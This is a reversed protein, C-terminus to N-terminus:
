DKKLFLDKEMLRRKTLGPLEKGAQKNWRVFQDAAGKYNGANLLKLLTSSKFNGSGVNYTFSVLADFQNQTLPTKVSNNIVDEFQLLDLELQEQAEEITIHEGLIVKRGHIRTSGYGCTPVDNPTPMYGVLRLGEFQKIIDQGAKSTKKISSGDNVDPEDPELKLNEIKNFFFDWFSM